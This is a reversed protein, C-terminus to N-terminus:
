EVCSWGQKGPHSLFEVGPSGSEASEKNDGGGRETGVRRRGGTPDSWSGKESAAKGGPGNQRGRGWDRVKMGM